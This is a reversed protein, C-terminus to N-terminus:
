KNIGRNQQNEALEGNTRYEANTRNSVYKFIEELPKWLDFAEIEWSHGWLHWVGGSTAAIDFMMRALRQWDGTMKLQIIYTLLGLINLEKIGHRLHILSPHPFAQVSTNLCLLNNSGYYHFARTTRALRVGTNKVAQITQRSFRGKPYCFSTVGHGLLQELWNKGEVVERRMEKQSLGPLIQHHFTHSGIEFGQSIEKISSPSIVPRERNKVPIYFTGKLGYKNLLHIMKIDEPCGDDWSTTVSMEKKQKSLDNGKQQSATPMKLSHYGYNTM